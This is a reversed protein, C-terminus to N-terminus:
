TEEQHPDEAAVEVVTPETLDTPIHVVAEPRLPYFANDPLDVTLKVVVTNAKPRTPRSQTMAVAKISRVPKDGNAGASWGWEPQLQVYFAAQHSGM